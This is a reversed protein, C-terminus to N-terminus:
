DQGSAVKSRIWKVLRIAGVVFCVTSVTLVVLSIILRVDTHWGIPGVDIAIGFAHRDALPGIVASVAFCVIAILWWRWWQWPSPRTSDIGPEM